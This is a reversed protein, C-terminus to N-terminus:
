TSYMYICTHITSVIFDTAIFRSKILDLCTQHWGQDEKGDVYHVNGGSVLERTWKGRLRSDREQISRVLRKHKATEESLSGELAKIRKSILSRKRIAENTENNDCSQISLM